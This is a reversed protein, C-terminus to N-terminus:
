LGENGWLPVYVSCKRLACAYSFHDLCNIFKMTAEFKVQVYEPSSPLGRLSGFGVAQMVVAKGVSGLVPVTCQNSTLGNTHKSRGLDPVKLIGM